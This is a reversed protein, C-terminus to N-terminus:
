LLSSSTVLRAAHGTTAFDRRNEGRRDDCFQLAIKNVIVLNHISGDQLIVQSAESNNSVSGNNFVTLEEQQFEM